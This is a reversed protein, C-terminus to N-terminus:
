IFRAPLVRNVILVSECSIIYGTLSLGTGQGIGQGAACGRISWM